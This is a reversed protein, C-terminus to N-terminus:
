VRISTTAAQIPPSAAAAPSAASTRHASRAAAPRRTPQDSVTRITSRAYRISAPSRASGPAQVATVPRVESAMNPSKYRSIHWTNQGDIGTENPTRSRVRSSGRIEAGMIRYGSPRPSRPRHVDVKGDGLHCHVDKQDEAQSAQHAEERSQEADAASKEGRRQEDEDTNRRRDGDGGAGVLDDCGRDRRDESVPAAAVDIQLHAEGQEGATYDARREPDAHERNQVLNRVEVHHDLDRVHQEQAPDAQQHQPFAQLRHQAAAGGRRFRPPTAGPDVRQRQLHAEPARPEVDAHQQRERDPQQDAHQRRDHPDAAAEDHHRRHDVQEAHGRRHHDSRRQKLDNEDGGGDGAQLRDGRLRHVDHQRHQEDGTADDARM